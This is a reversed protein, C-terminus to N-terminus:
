QILCSAVRLANAAITLGPNTGGSSPFFSGDVVYLNPLGHARNNEDLVSDNPDRGFRCTGCVHAIRENNEAQKVLDFAYPKLAQQMLGRMAEIRKKDYPRVRYHITLRAEGEAPAIFNDSYPLDELTTALVVRHHVLQKLFPTIAPTALNFLPALWPMAGQRLDEAMSATLVPAPPLRGFSQVSGLKMGDKQYFDNFAFEKQRNDFGKAAKPAILYLDIHHRMLNRGVLGSDNALGDPWAASASKLLIRPSELAGAALIIRKGRLTIREGHRECVVGTVESRTADLRLVECEDMLGAGHRAIAPELCIRSADNKCNRDCLYGQCAACGEVFECALPLRYPHLQKAQFFEFLEGAAPTLPPPAMYHSAPGEARLPDATGRVRFLKEAVEYYPALEAYTIPWDAPLSTDPADPHSRRPEFDSPFFRELAMGYLATSGGTGSGVFPIFSRPRPGSCDKITDPYRGARALVERHRAAPAEPRPFHTEAYSKALAGPQLHSKGKECFLVRQGARALAHGLVSGGMGTGIIIADWEM